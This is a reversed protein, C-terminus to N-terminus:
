PEYETQESILLSIEGLLGYGPDWLNEETEDGNFGFTLHDTPREEYMMGKIYTFSNLREVSKFYDDKREFSTLCSFLNDYLNEAYEKLADTPYSGNVEDLPYDFSIFGAREVTCKNVDFHKYLLIDSIPVRKEPASHVILVEDEISVPIKEIPRGWEYYGLSGSWIGNQEKQMFLQLRSSRMEVQLRYDCNECYEEFPIEASYTEEFERVIDKDVCGSVCLLMILATFIATIRKM